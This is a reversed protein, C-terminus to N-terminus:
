TFRWLCGVTLRLGQCSPSIFANVVRQRMASASLGKVPSSLM